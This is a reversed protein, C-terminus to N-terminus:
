DKTADIQQVGADVTPITARTEGIVSFVLEYGSAYAGTMAARETTALDIKPKRNFLVGLWKRGVASNLFENVSAAEGPTWIAGNM